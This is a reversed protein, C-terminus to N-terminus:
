VSERKHPSRNKDSVQTVEFFAVASNQALLM